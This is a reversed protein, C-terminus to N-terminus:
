RTSASPQIIGSEYAYIVAQVRDRCELKALLNAVHLKITSPEVVLQAAIESNSHGRALLTLVERERPTLETLADPSPTPRAFREILLV